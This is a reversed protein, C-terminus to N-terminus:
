KIHDHFAYSLNNYTETDYMVIGDKHWLGFHSLGLDLALRSCVTCYPLGSHQLNGVEDIRAFYLDAGVLDHHHLLADTLARWEAHVCCTRDSKPKSSERQDLHCKANKLNGQPPANFGRGIVCGKQVIIAGCKGRTCLANQAELVALLFFDKHKM